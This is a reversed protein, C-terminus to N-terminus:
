SDLPVGQENEVRVQLPRLLPLSITKSNHGKAVSFRPSVWQGIRVTLTGPELNEITCCGSSDLELPRLESGSSTVLSAGASVFPAGSVASRLALELSAGMPLVPGSTRLGLTYDEMVVPGNKAKALNYLEDPPASEESSKIGLLILPFVVMVALCAALGTWRVPERSPREFFAFLGGLSPWGSNPAMHKRELEAYLLKRGRRLRTRTTELTTGMIEAIAPPGHGEFFRLSLVEKYLDPLQNVSAEVRCHVEEALMREQRMGRDAILDLDVSEDLRRVGKRRHQSAMRNNMVRVIWGHMAGRNKPPAELVALWLEQTLDDADHSNGGALNRAIVRVFDEECLVDDMSPYNLLEEQEDNM